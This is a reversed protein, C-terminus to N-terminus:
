FGRGAGGGSFGGGGGSFGGGGGGFGGGGGRPFGGGYFGGGRPPGGVFGGGGPFRGSSLIFSIVLLAIIGGVVITGIDVEEEAMPDYGPLTELGYENLVESLLANYLELTGEAFEDQRYYELAYKDIIRGVKADNLAGELGSGAEVRIQRESVALLILLGNNKEKGGIGWSRGVELAYQEPAMGELSEVTLVVIQAQTNQDLAASKEMIYAKTGSDFVGAYDNVYFDNTPPAVGLMFVACFLVLFVLVLKNKM